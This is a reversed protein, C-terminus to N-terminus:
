DEKDKKMDKKKEKKKGDRNGSIKEESSGDSDKEEDTEEEKEELLAEDPMIGSEGFYKALIARDAAIKREMEALRSDISSNPLLTDIKGDEKIGLETLREQLTYDMYEVYILYASITFLSVIWLVLFVVKSSDMSFMLMLFIMPILIVCRIGWRIKKQNRLHEENQYEMIRRYSEEYNTEM